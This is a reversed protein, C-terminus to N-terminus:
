PVREGLGLCERECTPIEASSGKSILCSSSIHMKLVDNFAQLQIPFSRPKGQTDGRTVVVDATQCSM